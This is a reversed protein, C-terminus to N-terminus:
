QKIFLLPRHSILQQHNKKSESRQKAAARAPMKRTKGRFTSSSKIEKKRPGKNNKNQSPLWTHLRGSRKANDPIDFGAIKKELM